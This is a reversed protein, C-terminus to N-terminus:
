FVGFVSVCFGQGTFNEAFFLGTVQEGQQTGELDGSVMTDTANDYTPTVTARKEAAERADDKNDQTADPCVLASVGPVDGAAMKALFDEIMAKGESGGTGGTGGSRTSSSSRTSTSSRTSSEKSSTSGGSKRASVEKVCWKGDAKALTLTGEGDDGDVTVEFAITASDGNETVKGMTISDIEDVDDIMNQVNRAADACKMSELASKDHNKVGDVLQEGVAQASTEKDDGLFFGPAWFGTIGLAALIVVLGVSLGVILGKKGGGGGPPQGGYGYQATQPYNPDYGPYQQGYGPQQQGYGPQQGYPQQGPYPQQGGYQGGQEPFGGSQPYGGPQQQGYPDPQQGYDPQGPQPPYTM